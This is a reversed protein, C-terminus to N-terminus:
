TLAENLLRIMVRVLLPPWTILQDDAPFIPKLPDRLGSRALKIASAVAECAPDQGFIQARLTAELSALAERDDATVSAVPVRAMRAM